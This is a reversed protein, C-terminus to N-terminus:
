VAYGLRWWTDLGAISMINEEVYIEDKKKSHYGQFDRLLLETIHNWFLTLTEAREGVFSSQVPYLGIELSSRREIVMENQEFECEELQLIFADACTRQCLIKLEENGEVMKQQKEREDEM